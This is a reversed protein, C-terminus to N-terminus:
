SNEYRRVTNAGGSPITRLPDLAHIEDKRLEDQARLRTPLTRKLTLPRPASSSSACLVLTPSAPSGLSKGSEVGPRLRRASSVTVSM